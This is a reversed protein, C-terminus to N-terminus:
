ETFHKGNLSAHSAFFQSIVEFQVSPPLASLEDLITDPSVEADSDMMAPCNEFDCLEERRVIVSDDELTFSAIDGPQLGLEKRLSFPITTRGKRGLIRLIMRAM